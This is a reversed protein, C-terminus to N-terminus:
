APELGTAWCRSPIVYGNGVSWSDLVVIGLADPSTGVPRDPRQEHMSDNPNM